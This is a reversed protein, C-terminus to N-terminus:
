KFMRHSMWWSNQSSVHCSGPVCQKSQTNYITNNPCTQVNYMGGNQCSAYMTCSGICQYTMGPRCQQCGGTVLCGYGVNCIQQGQGQGQGTNVAPKQQQSVPAEPEELEDSTANGGPNSRTRMDANVMFPWSEKFNCHFQIYISNDQMSPCMNGGNFQWVHAVADNYNIGYMTPISSTVRFAGSCRQFGPSGSVKCYPECVRGCSDYANMYVDSAGYQPSKVAVYATAISIALRQDVVAYEKYTGMYNMGRSTVYVKGSGQEQNNCHPYSAPKGMRLVTRMQPDSSSSYIDEPEMEGNVIPFSTYSNYTPPRQYIVKVPIYVWQNIDSKGNINFSNQFGQTVPTVPCQEQDVTPLMPVDSSNTLNPPLDPSAMTPLVSKNINLKNKMFGNGRPDVLPNFMGSEFLSKMPYRRIRRRYAKRRQLHHMEPADDPGSNEIEKQTTQQQQMETLVRQQLTVQPTAPSLTFVPRNILNQFAQSQQLQQRQQQARAINMMNRVAIAQTQQARMIQNRVISARVQAQTHRDVSMCTPRFNRVVCVLYPSGCDQFQVSCTPSPEYRYIMSTFRDSLGDRNRLGALGMPYMASHMTNNVFSPYDTTPNVGLRRQNQRFLEWVYDVYSHHLWFIPDHAATELTGMQGDIWLHVQNHLFELSSNVAANPETIQALRISSVIRAIDHRNFLRGSQGINRILPGSLTSWRAFPGSTVMGFGNGLFQETFLISQRPNPMAEDLSSDWYPVTVGPVKERLANEFMLLYVRHFGLFNPGGHAATTMMGQHIASLADYMSPAVSIDTKLLQVARHFNAREVDTLRRYEKRIRLDPRIAQRKHVRSSKSLLSQAWTYAERSINFGPLGMDRSAKWKYQGFCFADIAEGVTQTVTTKQAYRSFCDVMGDPLPIQEIMGNCFCCLYGVLVLHSIAQLTWM